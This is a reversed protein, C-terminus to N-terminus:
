PSWAVRFGQSSDRDNAFFRQRHAARAHLKNTNWAGGRVVYVVDEGHLPTDQWETLCWEWVNGSMDIAGYPSIGVQAFQDVPTPHRFKAEESNCVDDRWENGWPYVNGDPGRAAKEWEFETPLRYPRQTIESLWRCYADAEYWSVGTAPFRDNIALRSDEWHYPLMRKQAPFREWGMDSWYQRQRYGGAQIFRHYEGLTVPYKGIYYDPLTEQRKSTGLGMVFSGAPILVTEPEFEHRTFTKIGLVDLLEALAQSQNQRFDIWQRRRLRFPIECNEVLIPYIPKGEDIFYSWEDTVNESAVSSATLVVLMGDCAKLASEVARDWNMGPAIERHDVWTPVAFTDLEAALDTVFSDNKSSHSIFLRNM